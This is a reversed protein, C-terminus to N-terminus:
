AALRSSFLRQRTSPSKKRRPQRPLREIITQIEDILEPLRDPHRLADALRSARDQIRQIAKTLSFGELPGGRLLTFWHAVLMGLLKAYLECLVREPKLDTSIQIGGLSKWRKFLLEIQWRSCYLEWAQDLTLMEAPANTIMVTWDCLALQRQSATRGKRRATEHVKRRRQAAIEPPCRIALFRCWLPQGGNDTGGIWLSQDIQRVEAPQAALFEHVPQMPGDDTRLTLGAPVRSIWYIGAADDAALLRRDFFGMDRIRLAGRPLSPAHDQAIVADSGRGRAIALHHLTGTKLEYSAFLRLAAQGSQGDGNGCGPFQDALAAPLSITSCDEVYVGTFKALLPIRVKRSSMWMQVAEFLVLRLCEVASMTLRQQLGSGSIGLTEALSDIAAQPRALWGFVLARVFEAGSFGRERQIFRSERAAHDAVTGFIAQLALPIREVIGAMLFEKESAHTTTFV